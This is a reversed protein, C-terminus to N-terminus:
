FSLTLKAGFTRGPAWQTNSFPSAQKIVYAYNLVNSVLFALEVPGRHGGITFDLTTHPRVRLYNLGIPNGGADNLQGYPFGSGYEGELDAYVGHADYSVGFSATNTQDHDVYFYDTPVVGLLGGNIPGVAKAWSRAFNAYYSVSKSLPGDLAFEV